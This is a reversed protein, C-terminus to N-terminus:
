VGPLSHVATSEGHCISFMGNFNTIKIVKDPVQIKEKVKLLQMLYNDM